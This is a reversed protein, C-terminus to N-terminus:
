FMSKITGETAAKVAVGLLTELYRLPNKSAIFDESEPTAYYYAIQDHYVVSILNAKLLQQIYVDFEQQSLHYLQPLVHYRDICGRVISVYIASTNKARAKTYPPRAADPIIWTQKPKDFYAGPILGDQIWALITEEHKIKFNKQFTRINMVDGKIAKRLCLM